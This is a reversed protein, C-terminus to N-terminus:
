EVHGWTHRKTVMTVNSPSIGFEAAVVKRPVGAERKARIDKVARDCLKFSEAPRRKRGFLHLTHLVNVSHTVWELNDVRSNAKDGDIHNIEHGPTPRPPLFAAAV